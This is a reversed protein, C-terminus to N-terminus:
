PWFEVLGSISFPSSHLFTSVLFSLITLSILFNVSLFFIKEDEFPFKKQTLEFNFELLDVFIEIDLQYIVYISLVQSLKDPFLPSSFPHCHRHDIPLSKHNENSNPIPHSNLPFISLLLNNCLEAPSKTFAKTIM